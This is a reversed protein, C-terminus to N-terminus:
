RNLSLMFIFYHSKKVNYKNLSHHNVRLTISSSHQTIRINLSLKAHLLFRATYYVSTVLPLTVLLQIANWIYPRQHGSLNLLWTLKDGRPNQAALVLLYPLDKESCASSCAVIGINFHSTTQNCLM